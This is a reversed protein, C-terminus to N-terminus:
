NGDRIPWVYFENNCSIYDSLKTDFMNVFYANSSTDNNFYDTVDPDKSSSWYYTSQVNSFGNTNFWNAPNNGPRKVFQEFEEKTPLRWDRFGGYNLRKVWNMAENWNMKKSAINGDTLWMLGSQTDIFTLSDAGLQALFAEVDYSAVEACEPYAVVLADWAAAKLGQAHKNSVIKEYKAVDAIIKAIRQQRLEPINAEKTRLEAMALLDDLSKITLEVKM